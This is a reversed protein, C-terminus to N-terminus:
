AQVAAILTSIVRDPVGLDVSRAFLLFSALRSQSHKARRLIYDWDLDARAVVGLADWWHRPTHEAFVTAKIVVLDEPSIVPIQIGHFDRRRVRAAMEDDFYIGNTAKFIVDVLVGHDMAKFLWNPDKEDISFGAAALADLAPRADHPQVFVDLDYTWRPRGHVASAVGGMYAWSLAAEDLAGTVRRVVDFFVTEPVPQCAFTVEIPPDPPPTLSEIDHVGWGYGPGADSM